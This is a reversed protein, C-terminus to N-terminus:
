ASFLYRRRFIVKKLFFEQALYCKDCNELQRCNFPKNHEKIVANLLVIINVTHALLLIERKATKFITSFNLLAYQMRLTVTISM